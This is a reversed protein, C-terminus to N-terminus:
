ADLTRTIEALIKQHTSPPNMTIRLWPISVGFIKVKISYRKKVVAIKLRIFKEHLIHAPIASKYWHAAYDGRSTRNLHKLMPILFDKKLNLSILKAEFGMGNHPNIALLDRKIIPIKHSTILDLACLMYAKNKHTPPIVSNRTFGCKELHSSLGIEYREIIQIKNNLKKISNIFNSFEAHMFVKKKFVLFFSQLHFQKFRCENAYEFLGWYDVESHKMDSFIHQFSMFGGYCSDNALILEDYCSLSDEALHYARKYSGFDYECHREAGYKVTYATIKKLEVNSLECDSYFIIDSVEKLKKLYLIVTDDIISDPDWHAFLTLRKKSSRM